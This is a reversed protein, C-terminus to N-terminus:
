RSRNSEQQAWELGANKAAHAYEQIQSLTFQLLDKSSKNHFTQYWSITTEVAKQVSYVPRWGLHLRASSIDLKLLEAEHLRNDPTVSYRGKGWLRIVENVIDEVMLVDGDNPGFNWGRSYSIGDNWMLAGLWLYGSLPELVHQWPRIAKPNRISISRNKTLARICDPILRDESWDGGGIVNGARATALASNHSKGYLAPNFYSSRYAATVLEACGKSSSYPDAGGMPDTERYAYNSGKNEYCKDSTINVAVKVGETNRVAELLNVTGMINTEYTLEPDRYSPRVLPQAALHFVMDPRYKKIVKKIGAADRVDGKTHSIRKNLKLIKFLSPSTPPDLSYGIVDAGLETLWLSMYSGKFGTNGTILVKRGKYIGKFLDM